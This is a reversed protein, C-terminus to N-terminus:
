GFNSGGLQELQKTLLRRNAHVKDPLKVGGEDLLDVVKLLRQKQEINADRGLVATVDRAYQQRLSKLERLDRRCARCHAAQSNVWFGLDEFWFRQEEASFVFTNSCRLCNLTADIYWHRPCVSCNQKSTDAKVATSYDLRVAGVFFHGPMKRPNRKGFNDFM